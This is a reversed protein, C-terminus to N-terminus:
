LQKNAEYWLIFKEETVAFATKIEVEFNTPHALKKTLPNYWRTPTVPKPEIVFYNYVIYDKGDKNTTGARWWM